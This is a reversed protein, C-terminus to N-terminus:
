LVQIAEDAKLNPIVFVKKNCVYDCSYMNARRALTKSIKMPLRRYTKKKKLFLIPYHIENFRATKSPVISIKNNQKQQEKRWGQIRRHIIEGRTLCELSRGNNFESPRTYSCRRTVVSGLFKAIRNCYKDGCMCVENRPRHKRTYVDTTNRKVTDRTDVISESIVPSLSNRFRKEPVSITKNSREETECPEAVPESTVPPAAPPQLEKIDHTLKRKKKFHFEEDDSDSNLKMPVHVERKKKHNM